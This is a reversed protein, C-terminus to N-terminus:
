QPGNILVMLLAAELTDNQLSSRCRSKVPKMASADREPWANTVPITLAIETLDLLTGFFPNM